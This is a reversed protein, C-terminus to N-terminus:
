GKEIKVTHRESKRLKPLTLELVGDKFKASSKAGDVGAPMRLTRSFEGSHIEMRHYNGKEEKEEHRTKGSLTVADETLSISLDEKAYGPVEARVFVEDDREIVDVRPMKERSFESLEPFLTEAGRFPNMWGHHFFHDFMREMRREMEDFSTLPRVAHGKEMAQVEKQKKQVVEQDM